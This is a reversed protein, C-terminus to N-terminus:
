NFFVQVSLPQTLPGMTYIDEQSTSFRAYEYENGTATFQTSANIFLNGNLIYEDNILLAASFWWDCM